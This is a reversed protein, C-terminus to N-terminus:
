TNQIEPMGTNQYELKGENHYESIKTNQHGPMGTHQFELIGANQYGLM